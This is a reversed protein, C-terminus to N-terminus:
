SKVFLGNFHLCSVSSVYSDYNYNNDRIKPTVRTILSGGANLKLSVIDSTGQVVNFAIIQDQNRYDAPIYKAVAIDTDIPIPSGDETYSISGEYAYVLNNMIYLKFDGVFPAMLYKSLDVCSTINGMSLLKDKDGFIANIHTLPYFPNDEEDYLQKVNIKEDAM